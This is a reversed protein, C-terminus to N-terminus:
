HEILKILPLSISLQKALPFHLSFGPFLLVSHAMIHDPLLLSCALAHKATPFFELFCILRSITNNIRILLIKIPSTVRYNSFHDLFILQGHNQKTISPITTRHLHINHVVFFIKTFRIGQMHAKLLSSCLTLFTASKPM